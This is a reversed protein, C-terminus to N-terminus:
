TYCGCAAKFGGVNSGSTILVEGQVGKTSFVESIVGLQELCTPSLIPQKTEETIYLIQYTNKDGELIKEM